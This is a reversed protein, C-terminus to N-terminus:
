ISTFDNRGDRGRKYLCGMKREPLSLKECHRLCYSPQVTVVVLGM